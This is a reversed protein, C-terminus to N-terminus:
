LVGVNTLPKGNAANDASSKVQPAADHREAPTIGHCFTVNEGVAATRLLIRAAHCVSDAAIRLIRRRREIIEPTAALPRSASLRHMRRDRGPSRSTERM